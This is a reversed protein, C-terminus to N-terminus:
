RMKASRKDIAHQRPNPDEEIPPFTMHNCDNVIEAVTPM